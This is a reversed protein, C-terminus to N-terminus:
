RPPSPEPPYVAASPPYEEQDPRGTQRIPLRVRADFELGSYGPKGKIVHQGDLIVTDAHYPSISKPSGAGYLGAFLVLTIILAALSENALKNM